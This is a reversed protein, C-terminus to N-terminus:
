LSLKTWSIQITAAVDSPSDSAPRVGLHFTATRVVSGSWEIRSEYPVAPPLSLWFALLAQWATM